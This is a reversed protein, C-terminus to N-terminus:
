SISMACQVVAHSLPLFLHFMEKVTLRSGLTFPTLSDEGTWLNVFLDFFYIINRSLHLCQERTDTVYLMGVYLSHSKKKM